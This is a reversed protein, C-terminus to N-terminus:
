SLSWFSQSVSNGTFCGCYLSYFENQWSTGCSNAPCSYVDPALIELMPGATVVQVAFGVAKGCDKGIAPHSHLLHPKTMLYQLGKRLYLHGEVVEGQLNYARNTPHISPFPSLLVIDAQTRSPLGGWYSPGHLVCM